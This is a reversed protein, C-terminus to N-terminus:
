RGEEVMEIADKPCENACIGCGKCYYYNLEYYGDDRPTYVMDPCLIYCRGCKICKEYDVVPRMSRWDGTKLESANGPTVIAAGLALEKWSCIGTEKAM